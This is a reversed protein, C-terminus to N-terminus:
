SSRNPHETDNKEAEAAKSWRRERGFLVHVSLRMARRGDVTFLRYINIRVAQVEKLRFIGSERM